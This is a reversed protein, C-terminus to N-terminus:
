KLRIILSTYAKGKGGAVVSYYYTQAPVSYEVSEVSDRTELLATAKRTAVDWEILKRTGDSTVYLIYLVGSRGKWDYSLIDAEAALNVTSVSLKKPDAYNYICLKLTPDKESFAMMAAQKRPSNVKILGSSEAPDKALPFQYLESYTNADFSWGVISRSKGAADELTWYLTSGDSSLDYDAGINAMVDRPLLQGGDSFYLNFSPLKRTGVTMHFARSGDDSSIPDFRYTELVDKVMNLRKSEGSAPDYIFYTVDHYKEVSNDVAKATTYLLRNRGLLWCMGGPDDSSAIEKPDGKDSKIVYLKYKGNSQKSWCSLWNSDAARVIWAEGPIKAVQSPKAAQAAFPLAALAM